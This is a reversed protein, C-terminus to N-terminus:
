RPQGLISYGPGLLASTITYILLWACLIWLYGIVVKKAMGKARTMATENGGSTLLIIGIYVFVATALLTSLFILNTILNQTLEVLHKFECPATYEGVKEGCVILPKWINDM